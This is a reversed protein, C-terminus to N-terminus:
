CNSFPPNFLSFPSSSADGIIVQSGVVTTAPIALVNIRDKDQRSNQRQPQPQHQQHQHQSQAPLSHQQHQHAMHEDNPAIIAPGNLGHRINYAIQSIPRIASASDTNVNPEYFQGYM